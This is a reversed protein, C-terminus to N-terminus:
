TRGGELQRWLTIRGDEVVFEAQVRHGEGSCVVWPPMHERQGLVFTARVLGGDAEIDVIKGGCPLAQNFSIARGYDGVDLVLEGQEARADPAFLEAAGFNDGANVARSWARVVDEPDDGGCAALGSVALLALTALRRIVRIYRGAHARLDAGTLLRM